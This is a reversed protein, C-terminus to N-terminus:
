SGMLLMILGCLAALLNGALRYVPKNQLRDVTNESFAWVILFFGLAQLINM